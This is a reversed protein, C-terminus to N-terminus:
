PEMLFAAPVLDMCQSSDAWNCFLPSPHHMLKRCLVGTEALYSNLSVFRTSIRHELDVSTARHAAARRRGELPTVRRLYSACGM